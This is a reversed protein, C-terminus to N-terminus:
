CRVARAHWKRMEVGNILGAPQGDSYRFIRARQIELLEMDVGEMNEIDDCYSDVDDLFLQVDKQMDDANGARLNLSTWICINEFMKARKDLLVDAKANGTSSVPPSETDM